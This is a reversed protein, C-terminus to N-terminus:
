PNIPPSATGLMDHPSLFNAIVSMISLLAGAPIAAYAWAMSLNLSAFTQFRVRWTLEVGWWAISALFALTMITILVRLACHWRGKTLRLTLDVCVLSGQRFAVAIALMVCWILLRRM